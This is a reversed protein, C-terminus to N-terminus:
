GEAGKRSVGAACKRYVLINELSKASEVKSPRRAARGAFAASISTTNPPGSPSIWYLGEKTTPPGYLKGDHAELCAVMVLRGVRAIDDIEDELLLVM